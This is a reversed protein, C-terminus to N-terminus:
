GKLRRAILGHFRPRDEIPRWWAILFTVLLVFNATSMMDWRREPLACAVFFAVLFTAAAGWFRSDIMLAFSAFIM